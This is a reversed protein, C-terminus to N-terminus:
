QPPRAFNFGESCWSAIQQSAIVAVHGDAFLYNASDGLHRDVAVERQVAKFVASHPPGRNVMNQETFWAYSHVHDYHVRLQLAIGEFLLITAHTKRLDYLEDVLGDTSALIQAVVPAPLGNTDVAEARRLYGNMAYSTATVSTPVFRDTDDPCLSIADVNETFPALTAIWSKEEENGPVEPNHYALLPFRGRHNNAFRHVAIGIQRMNSACQARRATGRAAQVAPLLLSILIAIIAIVVLLEVLTFAVRPKTM